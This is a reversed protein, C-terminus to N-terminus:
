PVWLPLTFNQPCLCKNHGKRNKASKPAHIRESPACWKMWLSGRPRESQKRGYTGTIDEAIAGFHSVARGSWNQSIYLCLRFGSLFRAYKYPLRSGLQKQAQKGAARDPRHRRRDANLRYSRPCAASRGAQEGALRGAGKGKGSRKPCDRRRM